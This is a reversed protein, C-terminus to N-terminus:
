IVEFTYMLMNILVIQLTIYKYMGIYDDDLKLIMTITDTLKVTQGSIDAGDKYLAM